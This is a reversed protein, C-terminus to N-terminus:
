GIQALFARVVELYEAQKGFRIHHGAGAIRAVRLQSNAQTAIHATQENIIGGLEPDATILLAPCAIAAAVKPWDGIFDKEARFFNPDMLQKGESWRQAIIEPWTPHELRCQALLEQPSRAQM